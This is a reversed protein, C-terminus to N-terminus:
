SIASYFIWSPPETCAKGSATVCPRSAPIGRLFQLTRLLYIPLWNGFRQLATGRPSVLGRERHIM